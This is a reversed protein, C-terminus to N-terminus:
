LNTRARAHRRIQRLFDLLLFLFLFELILVTHPSIDPDAKLASLTSPSRHSFLRAIQLLVSLGWELIAHATQTLISIGSMVGLCVGLAAPTIILMVCPGALLNAQIKPLINQPPWLPWTLLCMFASTAAVSLIRVSVPLIKDKLLRAICDMRHQGEKKDENTETLMSTLSYVLASSVAGLASLLFSLDHAPNQHFVYGLCWPAAATLTLIWMSDRQCAGDSLLAASRASQAVHNSFTRNLAGGSQYLGVLFLLVFTQIFCAFLRVVRLHRAFNIRSKTRLVVIFIMFIFNSCFMAAPQTQGGSLALLHSLGSDRFEDILLKDKLKENALFNARLADIHPNGQPHSLCDSRLKSFFNLEAWVKLPTQAAPSEQAHVLIALVAMLPIATALTRCFLVFKRQFLFDSTADNKLTSHNILNIFTGM